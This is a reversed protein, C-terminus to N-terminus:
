APSPLLWRDEPGDGSPTSLKWRGDVSRTYSGSQLSGTESALHLPIQRVKPLFHMLGKGISSQLANELCQCVHWTSVLQDSEPKSSCPLGSAAKDFASTIRAAISRADLDIHMDPNMQMPAVFGHSVDHAIPTSVFVCMVQTNSCRAEDAVLNLAQFEALGCRAIRASKALYLLNHRQYSQKLLGKTDSSDTTVIAKVFCPALSARRFQHALLSFLCM